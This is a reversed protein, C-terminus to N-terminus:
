DHGVKQSGLSQPGGTDETLPIRWAFISSHTAMGKELPFRGSGPILGPDGANCASEKGDSPFGWARCTSLRKLRTWSKAVRHVIAQWARCTMPNELCSYQLPNGHGEGPSRGSGPILNADRVDGENAPPNKVVLAVQFAEAKWLPLMFSGEPEKWTLLNCASFSSLFFRLVIQVMSQIRQIYSTRKILMGQDYSQM